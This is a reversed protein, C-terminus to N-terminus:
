GRVDGSREPTAPLPGDRARKLIAALVGAGAGLTLLTMWLADDVSPMGVTLDAPSPAPPTPTTSSTASDDTPAPPPARRIMQQQIAFLETAEEMTIQRARLRTILYVFRSSTDQPSRAPVPVPPDDPDTPSYM